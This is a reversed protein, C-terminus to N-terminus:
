GLLSIAASQTTVLSGLVLTEVYIVAMSGTRYTTNQTKLAIRSQSTKIVIGIEKM